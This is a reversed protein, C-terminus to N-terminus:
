TPDKIKLEFLNFTFTGNNEPCIAEKYPSDFYYIFENSEKDYTLHVPIYSAENVKKIPVGNEMKKVDEDSSIQLVHGDAVPMVMPITMGIGAHNFEAKM